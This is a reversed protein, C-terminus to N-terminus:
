TNKGKWEEVDGLYWIPSVTLKVSPEPVREWRKRALYTRVTSPTYGLYKALAAIDMVKYREPIEM